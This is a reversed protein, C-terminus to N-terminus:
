ARVPAAIDQSPVLSPADVFPELNDIAERVKRDYLIAELRTLTEDKGQQQRKFHEVEQGALRLAELLTTLQDKM